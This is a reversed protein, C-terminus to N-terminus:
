CHCKIFKVWKFILTATFIVTLYLSVFLTSDNEKEILRENMQITVVSAKCKCQSKFIVINLILLLFYYM